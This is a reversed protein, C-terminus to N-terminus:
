SEQPQGEHPRLTPSRVGARAGCTSPSKHMKEPDANTDISCWRDLLIAYNLYEIVPIQDGAKTGCTSPSKHMEEPDASTDTTNSVISSVSTCFWHQPGLQTTSTVASLGCTSIMIIIIPLLLLLLTMLKLQQTGATMQPTRATLIFVRAARPKV